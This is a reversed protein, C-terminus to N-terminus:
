YLGKHKVLTSEHPPLRHTNLVYVSWRSDPLTSRSIGYSLEFLVRQTKNFVDLAANV